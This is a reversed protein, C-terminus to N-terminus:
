SLLKIKIVMNEGTIIVNNRVGNLPNSQFLWKRISFGMFHQGLSVSVMGPNIKQLKIWVLRKM